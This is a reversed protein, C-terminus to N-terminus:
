SQSFGDPTGEELGLNAQTSQEAARARALANCIGYRRSGLCHAQTSLTSNNANRQKEVRCGSAGFYPYFPSDRGDPNDGAFRRDGLYKICKLRRERQAIFRENSEISNDAPTITTRQLFNKRPNQTPEIVNDCRTIALELHNDDSSRTNRLNRRHNRFRSQRFVSVGSRLPSLGNLRIRMLPPDTPYASSAASQYGVEGLYRSRANWGV